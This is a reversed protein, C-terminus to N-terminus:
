HRSSWINQFYSMGWLFFFSVTWLDDSVLPQIIGVMQPEKRSRAAYSPTWEEVDDRWTQHILEDSWFWVHYQGMTWTGPWGRANKWMSMAISFDSNQFLLDDFSAPWPKRSLTNSHLLSDGTKVFSCPVSKSRMSEGHKRLQPSDETHKKKKM